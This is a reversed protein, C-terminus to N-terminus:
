ILPRAKQREQASVVTSGDRMALFIDVAVWQAQARGTKPPWVRISFDGSVLTREECWDLESLNEEGMM